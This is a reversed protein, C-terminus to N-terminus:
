PREIPPVAGRTGRVLPVRERPRTRASRSLGRLWTAFEPRTMILLRGVHNPRTGCMPDAALKFTGSREARISVSSPLDPVAMGRIGMEPVSFTYISDDSALVLKVAAGLPLGVDGVSSLDDPTGIARDRGAYRFHWRSSRGTALIEVPDETSSAASAPRVAIVRAGIGSEWRGSPRVFSLAMLSAAGIAILHRVPGGIRM